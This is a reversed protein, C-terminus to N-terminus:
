IQWGNEEGCGSHCGTRDNAGTELDALMKLKATASIQAIITSEHLSSELEQRYDHQSLAMKLDRPMIQM